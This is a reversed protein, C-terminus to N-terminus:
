PRIEQHGLVIAVGLLMAVGHCTRRTTRHQEAATTGSYREPAFRAM